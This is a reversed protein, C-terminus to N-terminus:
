WGMGWLRQHLLQATGLAHMLRIRSVGKWLRDKSSAWQPRKQRSTARHFCKKCCKTGFSIPQRKCGQELLFSQIKKQSSCKRITRMTVPLSCCKSSADQLPGWQLKFADGPMLSKKTGQTLKHGPFAYLEHFAGPRAAWREGRSLIHCLGSGQSWQWHLNRTQKQFWPPRGRSSM